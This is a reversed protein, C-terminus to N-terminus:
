FGSGIVLNASSIVLIMFKVIRFVEELAKNFGLFRPKVVFTFSGNCLSFSGEFFKNSIRVQVVENLILVQAGDGSSSNM